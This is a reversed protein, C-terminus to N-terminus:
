PAHPTPPLHDLTGAGNGDPSGPPAADPEAPAPPREGVAFELRARFGERGLAQWLELFRDFLLERRARQFVAMSALGRHVEAHPPDGALAPDLDKAAGARGRVHAVDAALVQREHAELRPLVVDADHIEGLLDQVDKARKAAAAAYPGFCAESIELIYRLRKAAIRMDHLHAVERPDAARPMFGFLEDTRVRVIRELNDALTGAPDLDKVKRAKM